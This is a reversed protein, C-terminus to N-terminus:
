MDDKPWQELVRQGQRITLRGGAAGLTILL